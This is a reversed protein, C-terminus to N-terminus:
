PRWNRIHAKYRDGAFLRAEPPNYRDCAYDFLADTDSLKFVYDIAPKVITEIRESDQFDHIGVGRYTEVIPMRDTETLKVVEWEAGGSDGLARRTIADLGDDPSSNGAARPGKGRAAAERQDLALLRSAARFRLAPSAAPDSAVEEIVRRADVPKRRRKAATDVRKPM